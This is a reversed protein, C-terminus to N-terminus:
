MIVIYTPKISPFILALEIKIESIYTKTLKKNNSKLMNAHILVIYLLSQYRLNNLYNNYIIYM